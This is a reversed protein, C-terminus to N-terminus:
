PLKAPAPCYRATPAARHRRPVPLRPLARFESGRSGVKGAGQGLACGRSSGSNACPHPSATLTITSTPRGIPSEPPSQFAEASFWAAKAAVSDQRPDQQLVALQVSCTAVTVVGAACELPEHLAGTPPSSQGPRASASRACPMRRLAIGFSRLAHDDATAPLPKGVIDRVEQQGLRASEATAFACSARPIAPGSPMAGPVRADRAQRPAPRAKGAGFQAPMTRPPPLETVPQGPCSCPSSWASWALIATSHRPATASSRFENGASPHRGLVVTAVPPTRSFDQRLPRGPAPSTVNGHFRGDLPADADTPVRMRSITAKTRSATSSGSCPSRRIEFGAIGELDASVSIPRCAPSVLDLSEIVVDHVLCLGKGRGAYADGLASRTCSRRSSAAAPAADLSRPM